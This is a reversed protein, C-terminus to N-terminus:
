LTPGENKSHWSNTSKTSSCALGKHDQNLKEASALSALSALAVCIPAIVVFAPLKQPLYTLAALFKLISMSAPKWGATVYRNCDLAANTTM